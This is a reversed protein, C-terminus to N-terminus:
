IQWPFIIVNQSVAAVDIVQLFAGFQSNILLDGTRTGAREGFLIL